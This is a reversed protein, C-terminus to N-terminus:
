DATFLMVLQMKVQMHLSNKKGTAIVLDLYYQDYDVLARKDTRLTYVKFAPNNSYVPSISASMIVFSKTSAKEAAEDAAELIQLHFDDRHTHAYFQGTFSFLVGSFLNEAFQIEILHLLVAEKARHVVQQRKRQDVAGFCM